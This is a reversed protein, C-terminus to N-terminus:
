DKDPRGEPATTTTAPTTRQTAIVLTVQTDAPVEQGEAPDSDIVTGAAADSPRFILRYALGRRDLARQAEQQSLGTLAPVTVEAPETPETTTPRTTPETTAPETTTPATSAPEAASPTTAPPADTDDTNQAILYVGWGIAALLILALIGVVIPMWWRGRPEPPPVTSWETRTYEERGPLPPRVEARGSWAGNWEQQTVRDAAPMVATSDPRPTMVPEEADPPPMQATRDDLSSDGSRPGDNPQNEPGRPRDDDDDFPSFQRTEDSMAADRREGDTLTDL